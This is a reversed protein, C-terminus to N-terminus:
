INDLINQKLAGSGNAGKFKAGEQLLKIIFPSLEADAAIRYLNKYILLM